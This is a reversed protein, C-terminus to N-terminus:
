SLVVLKGKGLMKKKAILDDLDLNKPPRAPYHSYFEALSETLAQLEKKQAQVIKSTAFLDPPPRCPVAPQKYMLQIIVM